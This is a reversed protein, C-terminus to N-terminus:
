EFGYPDYNISTSIYQKPLSSDEMNAINIVRPQNIGDIWYVKQILETEYYPIADILNDISFNLTFGYYLPVIETVYENFEDSSLTLRYIRDM